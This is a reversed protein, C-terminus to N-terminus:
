KTAEKMRRKVAAVGQTITTHDRGFFAGIAVTTHGAKRAEYYALQRPHSQRPTKPNAAKGCIEAFSIGAMSAIERAILEISTTAPNGIAANFETPTM